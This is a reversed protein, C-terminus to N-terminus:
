SIVSGRSQSPSDLENLYSELQESSLYSAKYFDWDFGCQPTSPLPADSSTPDSPNLSTVVDDFSLLRTDMLIGGVKVVEARRSNVDKWEFGRLNALLVVALLRLDLDLLRRTLDAWQCPPITQVNVFIRKGVLRVTDESIGMTQFLAAIQFPIEAQVAIM